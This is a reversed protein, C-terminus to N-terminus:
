GPPRGALDRRGPRLIWRSGPWRRRGPFGPVPLRPLALPHGQPTWARLQPGLLSTLEGSPLYNGFFQQPQSNIGLMSSNNPIQVRLTPSCAWVSTRCGRTVINLPLAPTKVWLWTALKNAHNPIMTPFGINSTMPMQLHADDSTM